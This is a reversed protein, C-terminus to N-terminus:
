KRLPPLIDSAEMSPRTNHIKLNLIDSTEVLPGLSAGIVGRLQIVGYVWGGVVTM